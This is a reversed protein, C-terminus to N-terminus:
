RNLRAVLDYSNDGIKIAFEKRSFFFEEIPFRYYSTKATKGNILQIFAHQKQGDKSLSIGPIVSLIAEEDKSVMKFYWGEFYNSKKKNGQFIITNGAKKLNYLPIWKHEHFNTGKQLEQANLVILPVLINLILFPIRKLLKEPM